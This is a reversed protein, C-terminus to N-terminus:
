GEPRAVSPCLRYTASLSPEAMRLIGKELDIGTLVTAPVDSRGSPRDSNSNLSVSPLPELM